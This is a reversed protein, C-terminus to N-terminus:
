SRVGILDLSPVVVIKLGAVTVAVTGPETLAVLLSMGAEVAEDAKVESDKM